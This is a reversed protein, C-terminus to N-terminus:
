IRFLPTTVSSNLISKVEEIIARAEDSTVDADLYVFDWILQGNFLRAQGSFEPGLDYASAYSHLDLLIIEGFNTKLQSDGNFSLATSSMRFSRMGTVMKLLFETMTAAVFHDGSRLSYYFKRQLSHALQWINIGGEVLVTHRLMSIYCALSENKLPPVVYPRMDWFSITRMPVYRGAYLHRNVAVLLAASLVADLTVKELQARHTLTEVYSQTLTLSLIHGQSPMKHVPPIRKDRTRLRYLVEDVIQQPAFRLTQLTLRFGRFASPFRSEQPPPPPVEYVTVTRQDMFSACATLLENMLHGASAPDMISHFFTLIIEAHKQNADYLYTCRFMPNDTLEIRTGLDVEVVKTWHDDNWRPLVRLPLIPDVLSAFYYKGKEKLLRARLFPHHNQASKLAQRLIQPPPPCELRLVYVSHFPAYRDSIVLAREFTGLERKM